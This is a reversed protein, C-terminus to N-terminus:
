IYKVYLREIVAFIPTSKMRHLENIDEKWIQIDGVKHRNLLDDIMQARLSRISEQRSKRFATRDEIPIGYTIWKMEIEKKFIKVATKLSRM